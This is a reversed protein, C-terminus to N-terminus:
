NEKPNTIRFDARSTEHAERAANHIPITRCTIKRGDPLYAVEHGGLAHALANRAALRVKDADAKLDAHKQYADALRMADPGLVINEGKRVPHAALVKRLGEPDHPQPAPPVQALVHNRWFAGLDALLQQQILRSRPIQYTRLSWGFCAFLAALTGANPNVPPVVSVSGMVLLQHQVQILYHVPVEDTGDEGWGQYTTATKIELLGPQGTADLILRDPSCGLWAHEGHRYLKREPTLITRRDRRQLLEVVDDELLTGVLMAFAADEDPNDKVQPDLGLKDLYVDLPGGWKSLGLIQAADSSGICSKREHLWLAHDLKEQATRM